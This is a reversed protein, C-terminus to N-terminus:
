PQDVDRVDIKGTVADAILRARYEGLLEIQRRARSIRADIDATARDLYEAIARQEPLPPYLGAREYVEDRGLGPVASDKSYGDLEISILFYYLWRINADTNSKDISYATDIVFTPESSYQIKGHSGKRGIIVCPASTNPSSHCGVTGNSGYVPVSGGLRAAKTLSDGYVLRCISKLRRVEWHAPVNGLWKIGSPKMRVGANLGRTVVRNVVARREEDLLAILREKTNIFRQIREDARDLFRAIARQESLPPLPLMQRALEGYRFDTSRERIGRTLALIWGNRAMERIIHAYYFPDADNTTRCVSYVPTSKGDSDSVGIAGAFADMQHIVLDEKRVGQYGIEKISETFGTTRRNKRLTVSGDRFCTIVEDSDRVPRDMKQFLWRGRQVDWHSPLDGLWEIGSPKYASHSNLIYTM